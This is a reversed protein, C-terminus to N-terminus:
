TNKQLHAFLGHLKGSFTLQVRSLHAITKVIYPLQAEEKQPINLRQTSKDGRLELSSYLGEVDEVQTCNSRVLGQKM